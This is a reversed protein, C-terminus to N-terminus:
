DTQPGKYLLFVNNQLFIYEKQIDAEYSIYLPIDRRIRCPRPPPPINSNSPIFMYPDTYFVKYSQLLMPDYSLFQFVTVNGQEKREKLWQELKGEKEAQIMFWKLKQRRHENSEKTVTIM